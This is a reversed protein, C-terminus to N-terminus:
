NNLDFQGKRVLSHELMEPTLGMEFPNLWRLHREFDVVDLISQQWQRWGDQCPLLLVLCCVELACTAFKEALSREGVDPRHAVFDCHFSKSNFKDLFHCYALVTKKFADFPLDFDHILQLM